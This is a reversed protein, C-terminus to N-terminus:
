GGRLVWYREDVPHYGCSIGEDKRRAVSELSMSSGNMVLYSWPVARDFIDTRWLQLLRWDKCHTGLAHPVLQVELGAAKLRSGFEVDEFKRFRKDPNFGGIEFFTTRWIVGLGCWFTSARREGHQHM